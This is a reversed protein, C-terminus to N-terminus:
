AACLSWVIRRKLAPTGCAARATTCLTSRMKLAYRKHGAISIYLGMSYAVGLTVTYIPTISAEIADILELGAEVEGGHSSLYLIIPERSEPAKGRDEMNYRFINQIVENVVSEDIDETLYLRRHQLDKLYFYDDVGGSQSTQTLLDDLDIGVDFYGKADKM